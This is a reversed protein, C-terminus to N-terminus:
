FRIPMGLTLVLDPADPGIGTGASINLFTRHRLVTTAGIEVIGNFRSSGPIQQGDFRDRFNSNGSAVVFLSTSPTAALYVGLSGGISNGYDFEDSRGIFTYNVSGFLVVPDDTKSATLRMQFADTGLGTFFPRSKRGTDAFYRGSLVLGLSGPDGALLDKSLGISVDGLGSASGGDELHDHIVVPVRVDIQSAWPLGVIVTVAGRVTDRRLDDDNSYAYTLEPEIQVQGRPLVQTGRRVLAEELARLEEEENAPTPEASANAVPGSSMPEQAVGVSSAAENTAAPRSALEAKLRAIEADREALQHRLDAVEDPSTAAIGMLAAAVAGFCPTM